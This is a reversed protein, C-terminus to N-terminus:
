EFNFAKDAICGILPAIFATGPGYIVAGLDKHVELSIDTNNSKDDKNRQMIKRVTFDILSFIALGGCIAGAVIGAKMLSSDTNLGKAHHFIAFSIGFWVASFSLMNTVLTISSFLTQQNKSLSKELITNLIPQIGIASYLSYNKYCSNKIM